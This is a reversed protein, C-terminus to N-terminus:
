GRQMVHAQSRSMSFSSMDIFQECAAKLEPGFQESAVKAADMSEWYVMDIWEGDGTESVSRFRFGPQRAVWDNIKENAKLWDTSTVGQKLRFHMLEITDSM